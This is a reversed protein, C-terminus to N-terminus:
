HLVVSGSLLNGANAYGDSFALSVWGLTLPTSELAIMVFTVPVGGSVGTGRMTITNGLTNFSISSISTSSFARSDGRNSSSVSDPSGDLCGDGDFEFSGNGNNGRFSGNGDAERCGAGEPSTILANGYRINDIYHTYGPPYLWASDTVVIVGTVTAGLHCALGAAYTPAYRYGCTGGGTDWDTGSGDQHFWLNAVLALPRLDLYGGDSFSMHLRPSGGSAGTVTSYYDFSPPNTAPPPPGAVGNLRVGAYPCNLYNPPLCEAPAPGVKLMMSWPDTDGPPPTFKVWKAESNNGYHFFTVTVDGSASAPLTGGFVLSM